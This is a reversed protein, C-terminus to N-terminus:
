DYADAGHYGGGEEEAEKEMEAMALDTIKVLNAGQVSKQWQATKYLLEDLLNPATPRTKSPHAKRYAEPNYRYEAIELVDNWLMITVNVLPFLRGQVRDIITVEPLKERSPNFALDIAKEVPGASVRAKEIDELPEEVKPRATRRLQGTGGQPQESTESPKLIAGRKTAKNKETTM